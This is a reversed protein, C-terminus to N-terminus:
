PPVTALEQFRFYEPKQAGNGDLLGFPPVMGDSWCFWFVVPVRGAYQDRALQYVNQLYDAAHASDITGIETVWLPLGFALYRNFLDSMNGAGWTPNPWNDPARQQYPHVGIADVTLGGAAASARSLYGADGSALGGAVVPRSSYARITTVADRLMAGFHEPPVGPDYGPGAAFLDSENWIEWADIGDRYHSALERLKANFVPLYSQWAAAGANSAPKPPVTAYDIVLMVRLGAARYSAIVPDYLPYGREAKWEIRVWQAGIAQLQAASPNGASNSPDINIAYLASSPPASGVTFAASTSNNNENSEPFRNVDDVLATVQHDGPTAAWTGSGVKVSADAALPGIVTGFTRYAGDIFYGVGIVVNAPTAAAGANRVVASFSVQEGAVPNPPSLAVSTVVVDPFPNPRVAFSASGSNNNENSEAFRNGEDVVATLTHNGASATWTGGQTGITM